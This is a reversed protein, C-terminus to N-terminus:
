ASAPAAAPAPLALYDGTFFRWAMSCPPPVAPAFFDLKGSIPPKFGIEPSKPNRNRAIQAIRYRTM